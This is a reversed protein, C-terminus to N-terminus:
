EVGTEDAKVGLIKGADGSSIVPLEAEPIDELKAYNNKIYTLNNYLNADAGTLSYRQPIYVANGYALCEKLSSVAGSENFSLMLAETGGVASGADGCVFVPAYNNAQYNSFAM